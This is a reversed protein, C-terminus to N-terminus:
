KVGRCEKLSFENRKTLAQRRVEGEGTASIKEVIVFEKPAAQKLRHHGELYSLFTRSGEILVKISVCNIRLNNWDIYKYFIKAGKRDWRTLM